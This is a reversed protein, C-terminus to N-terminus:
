KGLGEQWNLVVTFPIQVEWQAISVFLFRQGDRTVSWNPFGPLLSPQQFLSVPEGPDLPGSTRDGGGMPAAM